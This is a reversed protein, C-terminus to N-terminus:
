ITKSYPDWLAKRANTNSCACTFLKLIPSQTKLYRRASAAGSHCWLSAITFILIFHVIKYYSSYNQSM